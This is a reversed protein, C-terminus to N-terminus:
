ILVTQYLETNQEFFDEVGNSVKNPLLTENVDVEYERQAIKNKASM